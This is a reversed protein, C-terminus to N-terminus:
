RAELHPQGLLYDILEITGRLPTREALLDLGLTPRVQQSGLTVATFVRVALHDMALVDADEEVV